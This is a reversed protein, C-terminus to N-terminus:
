SAPQLLAWVSLAESRDPYRIEGTLEGDTGVTGEFYFERGTGQNMIVAFSAGSRSGMGFVPAVSDDEPYGLGAEFNDESELLVITVTISDGNVPNTATGLYTGSMDAPGAPLNFGNGAGGSCACLAALMGAAVIFAITLRRGMRHNYCSM